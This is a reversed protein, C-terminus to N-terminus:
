TFLLKQTMAATNFTTFPLIADEIRPSVYHNFKGPISEKDVLYCENLRAGLSLCCVEDTEIFMRVPPVSSQLEYNSLNSSSPPTTLILSGFALIMVQGLVVYETNVPM